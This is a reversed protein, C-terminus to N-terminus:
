RVIEVGRVMPPTISELPIYFSPQWITTIGEKLALNHRLLLCEAPSIMRM